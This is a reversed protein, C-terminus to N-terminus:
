RGRHSGFDQVFYTRGDGAKAYGVGIMTFHLSLINSRHEHSGMWARCVDRASWYGVAINEGVWRFVGRRGFRAVRDAPSQGFVDSHRFFGYHLMNRAHYKAAHRLVSSRRLAPLGRSTRARNTCGVIQSEVRAIRATPLSGRGATAAAPVAAAVLAFLFVPAILARRLSTLLTVRGKRSGPM